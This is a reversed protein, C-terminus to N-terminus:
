IHFEGPQTFKEVREEVVKLDYGRIKVNEDINKDSELVKQIVHGKNVVKLVKQKGCQVNSADTAIIKLAGDLCLTHITLNKADLVLTSRNSIEIKSPNPFKSRLDNICSAFRPTFVIRAGSKVEIGSFVDTASDVEVKVGLSHLLMRNVRYYDAEGSAACEPYGTQMQKKRADEINNKVSSCVLWRPMLTYGVRAAAIAPPLLRPFDQMMCELRTPKKFERPKQPNKTYKPNVFEPVRGGSKELVKVYVDLDIVFSNINGPFPSAKSDGSAVDGNPFGSARLLADLQNYEINLTISKNEGHLKCIAGKPEGPKREVTISNFAFHKTKSVGLTASIGRFVLANTDQFFVVWKRGEKKWKKALGSTHLLTHVDGHGHPKTGLQYHTSGKGEVKQLVFSANTDALSPVKEQKILTIDLGFNNHDHLMKATKEHTDDSTMIALPPPQKSDQQFATIHQSYHELYSRRTVMDVPLSIKIGKFGLREGLGGAVLVFASKSGEKLGLTEMAEFEASGPDLSVGTPPSPTLRQFANVNMQSDLLLKKANALYARLGGSYQSDLVDLQKSLLLRNERTMQRLANAVHAQGM